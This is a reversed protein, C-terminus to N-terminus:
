ARPTVTVSVGGEGTFTWGAPFEPDSGDSVETFTYVCDVVDTKNKASQGKREVFAETFTDVVNGADDRITGTFNEFAVPVLISNSNTDHAPAFDGNGNVVTQYATGGCTITVPFGKTPAAVAATGGAVVLGTALVIGFGMRICQRIM